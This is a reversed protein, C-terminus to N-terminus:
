GLPNWVQELPLTFGDVPTGATITQADSVIEVPVGPRYIEVTRTEPDILWALEAGAEIWESMKARLKRLRDHPSRLEIVFEPCLHWFGKLESVNLKALKTRSIWAADPSRRAGSPLM